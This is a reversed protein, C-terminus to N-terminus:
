SSEEGIFNYPPWPGTLTVECAQESLRKAWRDVTKEFGAAQDSRVLFAGDLLLPSPSVPERRRAESAQGELDSFVEDMEGRLRALLTRSAEQEMKKRLLFATGASQAGSGWRAEEAAVEKAKAEDFRVLVGWEQCGAIRDLIRDLRGRESRVHELARDDGAFLTFLKMPVVTGTQGFHDVMAAHAMARESVWDLNQFNEQISAAEYEPLPADAAVLWLSDGVALARPASLGPLGAPAAETPLTGPARVLCYLYTASTRM